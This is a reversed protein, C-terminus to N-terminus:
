RATWGGDVPLTVGTIAAAADSALFLIADAVEAPEVLRGMPTSALIAAHMKPDALLNDTLPTRVFSPAVANVRVGRAAWEVALARTWNVIAGKTAHYAPNPYLAGGVMGMISAVNVIAGKGTRLMHRGAERACRFAGTMNIAIVKEWTATTIEESPQRAGLGANNVLINVGGRLDAIAAIVRTVGAEDAVDIEHAEAHLGATKLEQAVAAAAHGDIDTVEVLAGAEALARATARGIGSGAGTVIAVRGDLRANLRGAM